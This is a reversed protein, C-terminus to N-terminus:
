PTRAIDLLNVPRSASVVLAYSVKEFVRFVFVLGYREDPLTVAENQNKPDFESHVTEVRSRHVENSSSRPLARPSITKGARYLAFVNGVEVGERAGRNLVIVRQQGIESIVTEPASIVTGSVDASAPHPVYALVDSPPALVLRDGVTIEQRARLIRMNTIEGFERVRADGLYIVEYGLVEKTGPDVLPKSARYVQWVLPSDANLGKVFATDGAGMVVRNEQSAVIRPADKFQDADIILPRNLFPDIATSPISPIPAADIQESRVKPTLKVTSGVGTGRAAAVVGGPGDGEMRLRPTAGSLDLILVNGPYIRHPNKVEDKNMGWLDPWRWPSKLYRKSIGWLTDGKVVVYRDPPNDTLELPREEDQASAPLALVAALTLGLAASIISHRMRTGVQQVHFKDSSYPLHRM